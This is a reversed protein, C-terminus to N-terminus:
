LLSAAFSVWQNVQCHSHSACAPTGSWSRRQFGWRGRHQSKRPTWHPTYFQDNECHCLNSTSSRWTDEKRNKWRAPMLHCTQSRGSELICLTRKRYNSQRGTRSPCHVVGTYASATGYRPDHKKCTSPPPVQHWCSKGFFPGFKGCRQGPVVDMVRLGIHAKLVQLISRDVSSMWIVKAVILDLRVVLTYLSLAARTNPITSCIKSSTRWGAAPHLVWM